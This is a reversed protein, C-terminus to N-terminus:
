RLRFSEAFGYDIGDEPTMPLATKWDEKKIQAHPFSKGISGLCKSCANCAKNSELFNLLENISQIKHINIADHYDSTSEAYIMSQPCKFLHGRDVTLCRWAHAIACKEYIMDILASNTTRTQSIAERFFSITKVELNVGTEKIREMQSMIQRHDYQEQQYLSVQVEDIYPLIKDDILHLLTGNTVICIQAAIHSKKVRKLLEELAPHLLPEGGLIRLVKCKIFHSLRELDKSADFPNMCKNPSLPSSHSCSRCSLNCQRVVNIEISHTYIINNRVRYNSLGNLPLNFREEYTISSDYLM